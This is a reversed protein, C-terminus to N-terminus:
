MFSSFFLCICIFHNNMYTFNWVLMQSSDHTLTTQQLDELSDIGNEEEGSFVNAILDIVSVVCGGVVSTSQISDQISTPAQLGLYEDVNGVKFM